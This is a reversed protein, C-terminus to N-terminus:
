ASANLIYHFLSHIAILYLEREFLDVMFYPQNHMLAYNSLEIVMLSVLSVNFGGIFYCNFKLNHFHGKILFKIFHRVKVLMITLISKALFYTWNQFNCETVEKINRKTGKLSMRYDNWFGVCTYLSQIEDKVHIALLIIILNNFKKM